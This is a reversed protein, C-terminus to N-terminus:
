TACVGSLPKGTEEQMENYQLELTRNQNDRVSIMDPHYFPFHMMRRTILFHWLTEGILSNKGNGM